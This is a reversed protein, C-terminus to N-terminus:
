KDAGGAGFDGGGRPAGPPGGFPAGGTPGGAAPAQISPLGFQLKVEIENPRKKPDEPDRRLIAKEKDISVVRWDSNPIMSGPRVITSTGNEELIAYIADGIVIGSLRRIPQPEEAIILDGAADEPLEFQTGFSGGESLLREAAQLQDFAIEEKSLAFPNPRSGFRSTAAILGKLRNPDMSKTVDKDVGARAMPSYEKAPKLRSPTPIDEAAANPDACGVIGVSIASLWISQKLLNKM